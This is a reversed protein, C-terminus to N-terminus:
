TQGLWVASTLFHKHILTKVVPDDTAQFSFYQTSSISMIATSLTSESQTHHMELNIIASM